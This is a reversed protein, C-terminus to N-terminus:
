RGSVVTGDSRADGPLRLEARRNQAWADEGTGTAAPLAEGFSVTEIAASVGLAALYGKVAEARSAGLAVNYEATGREDAHGEVLLTTARRQSICRADERLAAMAEDSLQASDFAFSVRLMECGPAMACRGDSCREGAACDADSACTGPATAPQESPTAAAAASGDVVDTSSAAPKQKAACAALLLATFSLTLARGTRM